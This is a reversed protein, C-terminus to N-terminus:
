PMLKELPMLIHTLKPMLVHTLKPM